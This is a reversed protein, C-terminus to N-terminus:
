ESLKTELTNLTSFSFTTLIEWVDGKDGSRLHQPFREYPAGQRVIRLAARDLEENGSTRVVRPGGEDMYLSGDHYLPIFVVVDGYLKKGEHQPFKETGLKEVRKRFNDYYTSRSNLQTNGWLRTKKPKAADLAMRILEERGIADVDNNVMNNVPTADTSAANAGAQLTFLAVLVISHRDFFSPM